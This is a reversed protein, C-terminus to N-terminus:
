ASHIKESNDTQLLGNGIKPTNPPIKKKKWIKISSHVCVTFNSLLFRMIRHRMQIQVTQWHELSALSIHTLLLGCERRLSSIAFSSIVSIFTSCFLVQPSNLLALARRASTSQYRDKNMIHLAQCWYLSRGLASTNNFKGRSKGCFEWLNTVLRYTNGRCPKFLLKKSKLYTNLGRGYSLFSDCLVQEGSDAVRIHDCM